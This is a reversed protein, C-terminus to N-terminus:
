FHKLLTAIHSIMFMNEASNTSIEFDKSLRRSHWSWGFTREVIWRIPLVAGVKPMIKEIIDVSVGISILTNVFTKCYGADATCGKISPHKVLATKFVEGSTITDHINAVHVKLVSWIYLKKNMYTLYQETEM